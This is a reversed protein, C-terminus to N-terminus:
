DVKLKKMKAANCVVEIIKLADDEDSQSAM